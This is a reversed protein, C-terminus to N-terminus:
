AGLVMIKIKERRLLRELVALSINGAQDTEIGLEAPHTHEGGLGHDDARFADHSFNQIGIQLGVLGEDLQAIHRNMSGDVQPVIERVRAPVFEFVQLSSM